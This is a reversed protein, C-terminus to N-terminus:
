ECARVEGLVDQLSAKTGPLQAKVARHLANSVAEHVGFAYALFRRGVTNRLFFPHIVCRLLLQVLTSCSEDEMDIISLAQAYVSPNHIHFLPHFKTLVERIQFLRRIDAITSTEQLCRVLLYLLTQCVLSERDPRSDIWFRECIRSILDQVKMGERTQLRFMQDAGSAM